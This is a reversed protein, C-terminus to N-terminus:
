ADDGQKDFYKDYKPDSFGHSAQPESRLSKRYRDWGRSLWTSFFRGFQSKPARPNDVMWIEAKKIEQCIWEPDQYLDLWKEVMVCKVKRRELDALIPILQKEKALNALDTSGTQLDLGKIFDGKNTLEKKKKKQNKEKKEKKLSEEIGELAGAIRGLSTIITNIELQNM